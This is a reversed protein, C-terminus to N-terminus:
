VPEGGSARAKRKRNLADRRVRVSRIFGTTPTLALRVPDIPVNIKRAAM